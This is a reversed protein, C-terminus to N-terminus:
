AVLSGSGMSHALVGVFLPLVERLSPFRPDLSHFRGLNECAIEFVSKAM